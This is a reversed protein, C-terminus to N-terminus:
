IYEAYHSQVLRAATAPPLELETEPIVNKGDEPNTWHQLMKVEIGTMPEVPEAAAETPEDVVDAAPATDLGGAKNEMDTSDLATNETSTRATRTNSRTM